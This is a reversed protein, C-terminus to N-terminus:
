PLNEVASQVFVPMIEGSRRLQIEASVLDPASSSSPTYGFNCTSVDRSIMGIPSGTSNRNGAIANAIPYNTYRTLTNANQDCVYAVPTNVLFVHNNPSASAFKFAPNMFVWDSGPEPGPCTFTVTTASPTISKNGKYADQGAVQNQNVVLRYGSPCLPKIRDFEGLTSFQTDAAAFDLENNPVGASNVGRYTVVDAAYLLELIRVAGTNKVRISNPVASRIDNDLSRQILDSEVILETRRSQAFYNDIPVTIFLAIFGAVIASIVIAVILEVLTFGHISRSTQVATIM